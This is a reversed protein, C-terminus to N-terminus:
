IGVELGALRELIEDVLAQEMGLAQPDEAPLRGRGGIFTGKPEVAVLDRADPLLEASISKVRRRVAGPLQGIYKCGSGIVHLSDLSAPLELERDLRISAPVTSEILDDLSQAGVFRLMSQIDQPSPGIHRHVFDDNQQLDQLTPAAIQKTTM